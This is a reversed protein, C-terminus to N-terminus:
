SIVKKKRVFLFVILAVVLLIGIGIMYPNIGRNNATSESFQAAPQVKDNVKISNFFKNCEDSAYEKSVKEFLFEFAYTANNAHLIRFKRMEPGSGTDIELTFDKVQLDGLMTDKENTIKGDGSSKQVREIYDNYYRTLHKEKEIDPTLVPNDVSKFILITGFSTTASFTSASDTKTKKFGKPLEFTVTSDLKVPKWGQAFSNLGCLLLFCLILNKM